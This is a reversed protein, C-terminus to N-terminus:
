GHDDEGKECGDSLAAKCEPTMEEVTNIVPLAKGQTRNMEKEM